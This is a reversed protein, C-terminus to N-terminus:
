LEIEYSYGVEFDFESVSKACNPKYDMSSLLFEMKEGFTYLFYIMGDKSLDNLYKM